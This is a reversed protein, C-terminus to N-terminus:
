LGLCYPVCALGYAEIDWASVFVCGITYTCSLERPICFTLQPLCRSTRSICLGHHRHLLDSGYSRLLLPNDKDYNYTPTLKDTGYGEITLQASNLKLINLFLVTFMLILKM